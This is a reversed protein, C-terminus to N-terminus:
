TENPFRLIHRKRAPETAHVPQMSNGASGRGQVLIGDLTSRPTAISQMQSSQVKEPEAEYYAYFSNM